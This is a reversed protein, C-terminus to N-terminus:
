GKETGDPRLAHVIRPPLSAISALAECPPEPSDPFDIQGVFSAGLLQSLCITKPLRHCWSECGEVCPHEKPGGAGAPQKLYHRKRNVNIFKVLLWLNKCISSTAQRPRNRGFVADLWIQRLFARKLTM